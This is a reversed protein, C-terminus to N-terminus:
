ELQYSVQATLTISCALRERVCVSLGVSAGEM